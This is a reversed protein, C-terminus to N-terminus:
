RSVSECWHSWAGRLAAEFDATFAKSDCLSSQAVAARLGARIDALREPSTALQVATEVLASRSECAWAAHGATALISLGARSFFRSGTLTLVPLGMWLSEMTTTGGNMPFADLAIDTEAMWSVFQAGAAKGRFDLREPAIGQEGFRRTLDDRVSADSATAILLRSRPVRQLIESWTEITAQTIKNVNNFSGFTVFGNKLAPLPTVAPMYDAPEYCWLSHPLRLLAECYHDAHAPPDAFRDTLRWDMALLGTTGPYNLYTIQVPAPKRAFVPLRNGETHGGLDVLIDIGDARIRAALQEDTMQRCAIWADALPRFRETVQDPKDQSFYVHVEFADHDQQRLIPLMFNAVPHNRFDATVYGLKLKRTPVPPNDHIPWHAKLPLEVVRSYERHESLLAEPPTEFDYIRSYLLNSHLTPNGPDQALAKRYWSSADRHRGQKWAVNGLNWLAVLDEPHFKLAELYAREAEDVQGSERLADGLNTWAEAHTPHRALLTRFVAIADSRAGAETLAIGLHNAFPASDPQLSLAQRHCAVAGALDGAAKLAIGLNDHTAAAEPRLAVARRSADVAAAVDGMDLAVLGLNQWAEAYRPECRVAERYCHLAAERMGSERNLDGLQGWLDARDPAHRVATQFAALAGQRDGAALCIAGLDVQWGTQAPDLRLADQLAHAGEAHRDLQHLLIGFCYHTFAHGPVATLAAQYLALADAARGGQHAAMAQRLLAAHQTVETM